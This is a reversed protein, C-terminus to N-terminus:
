HDQHDSNCPDKYQSIIIGMYICYNPLIDDGIDFSWGPNEVSSVQSFGRELPITKAGFIGSPTWHITLFSQGFGFFQPNLLFITAFTNKFFDLFFCPSQQDLQHNFWGM